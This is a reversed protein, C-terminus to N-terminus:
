RRTWVIPGGTRSGITSRPDPAWHGTITRGDPALVIELTGFRQSSESWCGVYENQGTRRLELVGPGTGFTDTYAGSGDARVVVEGWDSGSWSGAPEVRGSSPARSAPLAGSPQAHVPGACAWAVLFVVGCASLIVALIRRSFVHTV